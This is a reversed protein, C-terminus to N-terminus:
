TASDIFYLIFSLFILIIGVYLRREPRAFIDFLKRRFETNGMFQRDSITDSLDNIIDIITQISQQFLDRISTDIWTNPTIKGYINRKKNNDPYTSLFKNIKDLVNNDDGIKVRGVGSQIEQYLEDAIKQYDIYDSGSPPASSASASMFVPAVKGSSQQSSLIVAPIPLSNSTQKPSTSIPTINSRLSSSM